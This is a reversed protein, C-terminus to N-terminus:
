RPTPPGAMFEAPSVPTVDRCTWPGGDLPIARSHGAPLKHLAVGCAPCAWRDAWGERHACGDALLALIDGALGALDEDRAREWDDRGDQYDEDLDSEDPPLLPLCRDIIALEAECRAITDRPDNAEMLRTLSSDGMAWTGHWTDAETPEGTVLVGSSQEHWEAANGLEIAHRALYLRERIRQRLWAAPDEGTSV